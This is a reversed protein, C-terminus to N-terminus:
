KYGGMIWDNIEKSMVVMNLSNQAQGENKMQESFKTCEVRIHNPFNINYQDSM